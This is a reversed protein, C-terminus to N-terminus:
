NSSIPRGHRLIAVCDNLRSYRDAYGGGLGQKEFKWSNNKWIVDENIARNRDDLYVVEIIDESLGKDGYIKCVVASKGTRNDGIIIWDGRNIKPKIQQEM